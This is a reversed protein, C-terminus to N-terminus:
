WCTGELNVFEKYNRTDLSVQKLAYASRAEEGLLIAETTMLLYDGWLSAIFLFLIVGSGGTLRHEPIM